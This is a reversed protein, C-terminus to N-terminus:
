APQRAGRRQVILLSGALAILGLGLLSGAGLGADAWDIGGSDTQAVPEAAKVVVVDPANYTGRGDAYDRTDAMRLDQTQEAPVPEYTGRTAPRDRSDATQFDQPLKYGASEDVPRAVASPAAAAAIALAVAATRTLRNTYM